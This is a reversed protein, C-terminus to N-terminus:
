RGRKKWEKVISKYFEGFKKNQFDDTAILHANVTQLDPESKIWKDWVVNKYWTLRQEWNDASVLGYEKWDAWSASLYNLQNLFMVVKKQVELQGEKSRDPFVAQVIPGPIGLVVFAENVQKLNMTHVDNFRSQLIENERKLRAMQEQVLKSEVSDSRIWGPMEDLPDVDRLSRFVAGDIQDVNKVMVCMRTDPLAERFVKYLHPNKTEFVADHNLANEHM